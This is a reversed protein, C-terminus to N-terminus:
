ARGATGSCSSNGNSNVGVDGEGEGGTTGPLHVEAVVPLSSMQMSNRYSSRSAFSVPSGSRKRRSIKGLSESLCLAERDDSKDISTLAAGIPHFFNAPFKFLNFLAFCQHDKNLYPCSIRYQSKGNLFQNTAPLNTTWHM